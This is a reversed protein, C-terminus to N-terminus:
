GRKTPIRFQVGISPIFTVGSLKTTKNNLLQYQGYNQYYVSLAPVVYAYRYGLKVNFFAGYSSFDQKGLPLSPILQNNSYINRPQFGYRLFTHSYVVGYSIAGIQEEPGFSHSFVLPVMLDNRNATFQLLENINDLFPLDPLKARQTAFQLGISGYMSGAAAGPREPTGTSGLFQYMADFVHSGFAYKYGVDVRNAVGYRVYLDSSPQVPDLAYALAATQLKDILEGSTGYDVKDQTLLQEAAERVASGTKGITSTPVNFALNGGAKFEGKPTVKGSMTMLRPASCATTLLTAAALLVQAPRLFSFRTM